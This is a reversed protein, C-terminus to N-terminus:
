GPTKTTLEEGVIKKKEDHLAPYVRPGSFLPNSNSISSAQFTLKITTVQFGL